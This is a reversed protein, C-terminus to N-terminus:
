YDVRSQSDALLKLGIAGIIFLIGTLLLPHSKGKSLKLKKNKSTHEM